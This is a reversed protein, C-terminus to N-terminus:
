DSYRCFLLKEKRPKAAIQLTDGPCVGAEELSLANDLAIGEGECLRELVPTYCEHMQALQEPNEGKALLQLLQELLEEVTQQHCACLQHQTNDRHCLLTLPIPHETQEERTTTAIAEM